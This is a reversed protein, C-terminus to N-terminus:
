CEGNSNHTTPRAVEVPLEPRSAVLHSYDLKTNTETQPKKMIFPNFDPKLHDSLSAGLFTTDKVMANPKVKRGSKKQEQIFSEASRAPIVNDTTSYLYLQPCPPQDSSLISIIKRLRRNVDPFNLFKSFLKELISLLVKEILLPKNNTDFKPTPLYQFFNVFLAMMHM